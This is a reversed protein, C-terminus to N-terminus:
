KRNWRKTEDTQKLKNWIKAEYRRTEDKQPEKSPKKLTGGIFEVSTDKGVLAPGIKSKVNDVAKTVGPAPEQQQGRSSHMDTNGEFIDGLLDRFIVGEKSCLWCISSSGQVGFFVVFFGVGRGGLLKLEGKNQKEGDGLRKTENEWGTGGKGMYDAGGDRLECAENEGTSAGSPVAARFTGRDTTVEVEVTPNGRSDFVQRAHLKQIPM